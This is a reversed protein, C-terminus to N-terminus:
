DTVSFVWGFPDEKRGYQIGTLEEYIELALPGSAGDGFLITDGDYLIRGIPAIVAATGSGFGETIAGSKVKALLDNVDILQEKVEYGRHMALEIVSQRTIGPLISGNLQPTILAGEDVFFVNMAGVEEIYRREVGDLWLVQDYHIAQAEQQSKISAAYNGGTKASGIGGRVARVYHDEIYISVPKLGGSYYAASPSLIIMFKYSDSARVGLFEDTAIIFPRIYLSAGAQTPIWDQELILLEKLCDLVFDPDIQPIALRDASRNLREFNLQPRFLNIGGDERKYAKMGEFITQSYHLVMSSPWVSLPAYAEIRPDHWGKDKHYDMVFMHDTFIRGFGLPADPAPKEKLNTSRYIPCITSM